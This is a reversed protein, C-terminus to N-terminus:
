KRLMTTELFSHILKPTVLHVTSNRIRKVTLGIDNLRKTRAKDYKIADKTSHQAGDLEFIVNYTPLYFDVIYLFNQECVIPFQFVYPIKAQELIEKFILEWKTAKETLTKAYAIGAKRLFAERSRSGSTRKKAM